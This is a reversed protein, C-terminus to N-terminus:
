RPPSTPKSKQSEKPPKPSDKPQKPTPEKPHLALDVQKKLDVTGLATLISTDSCAAQVRPHRLAAMINGSRLLGQIQADNRVAIVKPHRTITEMDPSNWLREIAEPSSLLQGAKELESYFRPSLPDLKELLASARTRDLFQKLDILTQTSEPLEPRLKHPATKLSRVVGEQFSGSLRIGWAIVGLVLVGFLLGFLAGFAGYVWRILGFSQEETKKFLITSTVMIIIWIGAGALIGAVAPRVFVPFGIPPVLPALMPGAHFAGYFAVCLAGIAVAQRVVGRHWGLWLCGLLWFISCALVWTPIDAPAIPEMKPLLDAPDAPSSDAMKAASAFRM